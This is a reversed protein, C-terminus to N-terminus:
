RQINRRVLLDHLQEGGCAAFSLDGTVGKEFVPFLKM